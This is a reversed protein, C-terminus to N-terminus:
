SDMGRTSVPHRTLTNDQQRRYEHSLAELDQRTYKILLRQEATTEQAAFLLVDNLIRPRLRALAQVNNTFFTAFHQNTAAGLHALSRALRPSLQWLSPDNETLITAIQASKQTRKPGLSELLWSRVSQSCTKLKELYALKEHTYNQDSGFVQKFDEPLLQSLLTNARELRQFNETIPFQRLWDAVHHLGEWPLGEIAAVLQNQLEDNFDPLDQFKVLQELTVSLRTHQGWILAPSLRSFVKLNYRAFDNFVQARNPKADICNQLQKFAAHPIELTSEPATHILERELECASTKAQLLRYFDYLGSFLSPKEPTGHTAILLELIKNKAAPNDLNLARYNHQAQTLLEACAELDGKAYAHEFEPEIHHHLDYDATLGQSREYTGHAYRYSTAILKALVASIKQTIANSEAHSEPAGTTANSGKTNHTWGCVFPPQTEPNPWAQKELTIDDLQYRKAWSHEFLSQAINFRRYENGGDLGIRIQVTNDQENEHIVLRFGHTRLAIAYHSEFGQKTKNLAMLCPPAYAGDGEETMMAVLPTEAGLQTNLHQYIHHSQKPLCRWAQLDANIKGLAGLLNQHLLTHLDGLSKPDTDRRNSAASIISDAVNFRRGRLVSIDVDKSVSLVTSTDRYLRQFRQTTKDDHAYAKGIIPLALKAFVNLLLSVREARLERQLNPAALLCKIGRDIQELASGLRSTMAIVHHPKDNVLDNLANVITAQFGALHEIARHFEKDDALWTEDLSLLVNHFHKLDDWSKPMDWMPSLLAEIAPPQAAGFDKLCIDRFIAEFTGNQLAHLARSSLQVVQSDSFDPRNALAALGDLWLDQLLPLTLAYNCRHLLKLAKFAKLTRDTVSFSTNHDAGSQRNVCDSWFWSVFVRDTRLAQLESRISHAGVLNAHENPLQNLAAEIWNVYLLQHMKDTQHDIAHALRMLDLTLEQAVRKLVPRDEKIALTLSAYAAKVLPSFLEGLADTNAPAGQAVQTKLAEFALSVTQPRTSFTSNPTGKNKVLPQTTITYATLQRLIKPDTAPDSEDGILPRTIKEPISYAAPAPYQLRGPQIDDTDPLRGWLVKSRQEDLTVKEDTKLRSFLNSDSIEIIAIGLRRFMLAAHTNANAPPKVFVAKIDASPASGDMNQSAKEIYDTFFADNLTNAVLRQALNITLVGYQRYSIMNVTQNDKSHTDLFERSVYTPRVEHESKDQARRQVIFDQGEQSVFEMDVGSSMDTQIAAMTKAYRQIQPTNLSAREELAGNALPELQLSNSAPGLRWPKRMVRTRAHVSNSPPSIVGITEDTVTCGTVVGECHGWSSNINFSGPARARSDPMLGVGSAPITEEDGPTEGIMEQIIIGHSAADYCVGKERKNAYLATQVLAGKSDFSGVVIKLADILSEANPAVNSVSEFCGANAQGAQDETAASSRVMLRAGNNKSLIKELFQEIRAPLTASTLGTQADKLSIAIYPPVQTASGSLRKELAKLGAYKGGFTTNPTKLLNILRGAGFIRTPLPRRM